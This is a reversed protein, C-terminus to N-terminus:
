MYSWVLVIVTLLKPSFINCQHEFLCGSLWAINPIVNRSGTAMRSWVGVDLVGTVNTGFM